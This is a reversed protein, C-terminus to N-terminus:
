KVEKKTTKKVDQVWIEQKQGNEFEIIIKKVKLM